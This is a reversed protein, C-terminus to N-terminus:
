SGQSKRLAQIHEQIAQSKAQAKALDKELKEIIASIHKM